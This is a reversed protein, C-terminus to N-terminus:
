YQGSLHAFRKRPLSSNHQSYIANTVADLVPQTWVIDGAELQALYVPSLGAAVAVEKVSLM